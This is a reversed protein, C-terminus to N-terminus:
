NLNITSATVNFNGGANFNVNGTANFQMDGTTTVTLKGSTNADIVVKGNSNIRIGQKDIDVKWNTGVDLHISTEDMKYYSTDGGHVKISAINEARIEEMRSSGGSNQSLVRVRGTIFKETTRRLANAADYLYERFYSGDDAPNGGAAATAYGKGIAEGAGVMGEFRKVTARENRSDAQSRYLEYVSYLKGRTSVKYTADMDTFLEYNRSVVRVLDGLKTVIVQSMASSKLIATGSRLLGMIGGMKNSMVRDGPRIDQPNKRDGKIGNSKMPSYDAIDPTSSASGKVGPMPIEGVSAVPLYGTIYFAGNKQEIAVEDGEAPITIDANSPSLWRVNAVPRRDRTLCKCVGRQVDVAIVTAESTTSTTQKMQGFM